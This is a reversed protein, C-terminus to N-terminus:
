KFLKKWLRTEDEPTHEFGFKTYLVNMTSDCCMYDAHFEIM